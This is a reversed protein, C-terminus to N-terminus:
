RLVMEGVVSPVCDSEELCDEFHLIMTSHDTQTVGEVAGTGLQLM